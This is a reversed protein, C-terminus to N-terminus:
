GNYFIMLVDCEFYGFIVKGLFIIVIEFLLLSEIIRMVICDLIKNFILLKKMVNVEKM